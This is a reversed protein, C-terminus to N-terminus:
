DVKVTISKENQVFRVYVKTKGNSGERKEWSEVRMGKLVDSLKQAM